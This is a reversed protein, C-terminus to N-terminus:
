VPATLEDSNGVLINNIFQYLFQIVVLCFSSVNLVKLCSIKYFTLKENFFSVNKKQQEFIIGVKAGNKILLGSFPFFVIFCSSFM